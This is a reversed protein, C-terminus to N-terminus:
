DTPNRFILDRFRSADEYTMRKWASNETRFFLNGFHYMTLTTGDTYTYTIVWTMGAYEDPNESVHDSLQLGDIYDTIARCKDPSTYTRANDKSEPLTTVSVSCVDRSSALDKGFIPDSAHPVCAAFSLALLLILFCLSFCKM